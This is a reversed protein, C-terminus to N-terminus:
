KENKCREILVVIHKVLRNYQKQIILATLSTSITYVHDKLIICAYLEM